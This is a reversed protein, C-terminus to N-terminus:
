QNMAKFLFDVPSFTIQLDKLTYIPNVLDHWSEFQKFTDLLTKM